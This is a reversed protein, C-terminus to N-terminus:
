QQFNIKQDNEIANLVKLSDASPYLAYAKNIAYLAGEKDGTNYKAAALYIWSPIHNPDYKLSSEYAKVAEEFRSTKLYLSGLPNFTRTSPFLGVANNLHQEAENFKKQRLFFDGLAYEIQYSDQNYKLDHTYLTSPDKWNSNRIIVRASLLIIIALGLPIVFRSRLRIASALYNILVGIIGLLGIMPFYFWRDAVTQDLPIIQLHLGLGISFWLLFFLLRKFLGRYKRYILLGFLIIGSFFLTDALLPIYFNQLTFSKITWSQYVVLDKPYVFTSLYFFVIKPVHIVREWFSLTQIPVIINQPFSVQAVAFRLFAYTLLALSSQLLGNYIAEKKNKKNNLYNFVPIILLFAVGTEKSLLSMTLLGTVLSTIHTSKHKRTSVYLALLGFLSFLPDQLNSIYIVAETNFPHTLFLLSLFISMGKQFFYRFILYILVSNTIHILIQILHFGLPNERSFFYILAFTSSLLPKYYNIEANENFAGKSFAGKTFLSPINWISHVSQNNRVQAFDDGVFSNFLSNAYIIM